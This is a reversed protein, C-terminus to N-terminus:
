FTRASSSAWTSSRASPSSDAPWFRSSDPTMVEDIVIIRGDPARGFEYKTDALIIGRERLVDRGRTYLAMSADRLENALERREAVLGLHLLRDAAPSASRARRHAVHDRPAVARLHVDDGDDLVSRTLVESQHFVM